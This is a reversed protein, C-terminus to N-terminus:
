EEMQVMVGKGVRGQNNEKDEAEICITKTPLYAVFDDAVTSVNDSVDGDEAAENQDISFLLFLNFYPNQLFNSRYM